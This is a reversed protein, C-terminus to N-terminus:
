LREWSVITVPGGPGEDGDSAGGGGDDTGGDDTGGADGGGVDTSGADTGGKGSGGKGSGSGGKGSGGGTDDDDGHSGHTCGSHGGGGSHGGPAGEGVFGDAWEEFGPTDKLVASDLNVGTEGHTTLGGKYAVLVGNQDLNGQIDIDGHSYVLGNITANGHFSIKPLAGTDEDRLAILNANFTGSNQFTMDEGHGTVLTGQGTLNGGALVDVGWPFYHIKDDLNFEGSITREAHVVVDPNVAPKTLPEIEPNPLVLGKEDPELSNTVRWDNIFPITAPSTDGSYVLLAGDIEPTQTITGRARVDQAEDVQTTGSSTINGGALIRGNTDVPVINTIGQININGSAKISGRLTKSGQLDVNGGVAIALGLASPSGKSIMLGVRRDLGAYHGHGVIYASGMPVVTGNSATLLGGTGTLNNYVEASYSAGVTMERKELPGEWGDDEVLKRLAHSAGSEAAFLAQKTHREVKAQNLSGLGQRAVTSVGIMMLTIIMLVFPLAIGRRLYLDVERLRVVHM